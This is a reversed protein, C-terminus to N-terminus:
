NQRLNNLRNQINIDASGNSRISGASSSMYGSDASHNSISSVTSVTSPPSISSSNSSFSTSSASRSMPASQTTTAPTSIAPRNTDPAWSVSKNISQNSKPPRKRSKGLKGKHIAPVSVETNKQVNALFGGFFDKKISKTQTSVRGASAGGTGVPSFIPWVYDAFKDSVTNWARGLVSGVSAEGTPDARIVPECGCYAYGNLGGKGFPSFRDHSHFRMLLPNYVRYGNGLFYWDTEEERLEGNFGLHTMVEQRSSQQGYPSYAFHHISGTMEILVTNKSDGALLLTRHNASKSTPMAPGRNSPVDIFAELM